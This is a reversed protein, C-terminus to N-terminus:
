NEELAVRELFNELLRVHGDDLHQFYFATLFLTETGEEVEEVRVVIGEGDIERVEDEEVPVLLNFRYRTFLSLPYPLRCSLGNLCIDHTAVTIVHPGHQVSVKVEARHRRGSRREIPTKPAKNM